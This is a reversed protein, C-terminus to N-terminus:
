ILVLILLLIQDLFNLLFSIDLLNKPKINHYMNSWILEPRIKIYILTRDYSLLGKASKIPSSPIVVSINKTLNVLPPLGVVVIGLGLWM